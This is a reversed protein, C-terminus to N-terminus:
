KGPKEQEWYRGDDKGTVPYDHTAGPVFNHLPLAAHCFGRIEAVISRRTRAEAL